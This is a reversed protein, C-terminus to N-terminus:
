KHDWHANGTLWGSGCVLGLGGCQERVQWYNGARQEQEERGPIVERGEEGLRRGMDSSNLKASM